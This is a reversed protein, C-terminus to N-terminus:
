GLKNHDDNSEEDEEEEEEEEEEENKHAAHIIFTLVPRCNYRVSRFLYTFAGFTETRAYPVWQTSFCWNDKVSFSCSRYFELWKECVLQECYIPVAGRARM